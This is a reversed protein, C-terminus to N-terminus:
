HKVPKGDASGDIRGRRRGFRSLVAGGIRQPPAFNTWTWLGAMWDPPSTLRLLIASIEPMTLRRKDVEQM